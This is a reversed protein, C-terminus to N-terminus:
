GDLFKQVRLWALAEDRSHFVRRHSGLAGMSAVARGAIEFARPSPAVIAIARPPFNWDREMIPEAVEQLDRDSLRTQDLASNDVLIAMGARFRPDSVLKQNMLNFGAPDASGSATITVDQPDGGFEIAFEVQPM